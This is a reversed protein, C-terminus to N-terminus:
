MPHPCLSKILISFGDLEPYDKPNLSNAKLYNKQVKYALGESQQLCDYSSTLGSENQYHHVLEHVVVSAGYITRVDVTNALYVVGARHDYLALVPSGFLKQLTEPPSYHVPPPSEIHIDENIALWNILLAVLIDM